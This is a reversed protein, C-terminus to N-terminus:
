PQIERARARTLLALAFVAPIVACGVLAWTGSPSQEVLALVGLLAALIALFWGLMREQQIDDRRLPADTELRQKMRDFFEAGVLPTKSGDQATRWFTTLFFFLAGLPAIILNTATFPHTALYNISEAIVAPATWVRTLLPLGHFVVLTVLAIFGVTARPAWHPEGRVVIGMFLPIGLPV